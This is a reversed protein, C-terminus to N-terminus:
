MQDINGAKVLTVGENRGEPAKRIGYKTHARSPPIGMNKRSTAMPCNM